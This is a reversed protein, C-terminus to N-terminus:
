LPARRLSGVAQGGAVRSTLDVALASARGRLTGLLSESDGASQAPSTLGPIM